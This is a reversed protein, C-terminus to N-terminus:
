GIGVVVAICTWGSIFSFIGSIIGSTMGGVTDSTPQQTATSSAPSGRAIRPSFDLKFMTLSLPQQTVEIERKGNKLINSGIALNSRVARETADPFIFRYVCRRVRVKFIGAWEAALANGDNSGDHILNPINFRIVVRKKGPGAAAFSWNLKTEREQSVWTRISNGADDSGNLQQAEYPGIYKFGTSKKGSNIQYTIDMTVRVDSRGSFSEITLEYNDITYDNTEQAVVTGAALALLVLATVAFLTGDRVKM